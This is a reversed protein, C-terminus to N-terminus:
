KWGDKEEVQQEGNEDYFYNKESVWSEIKSNLTVSNLLEPTEGWSSRHRQLRILKSYDDSM